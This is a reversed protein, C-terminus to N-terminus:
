QFDLYKLAFALRFFSDPSPRLQTIGIRCEM